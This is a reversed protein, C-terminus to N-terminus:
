DECTQKPYRRKTTTTTTTTTTTSGANDSSMTLVMVGIVGAHFLGVVLEGLAVVDAPGPAPSDLQSTIGAAVAWQTFVPWAANAADAMTQSVLNEAHPKAPDPYRLFQAKVARRIIEAYGYEELAKRGIRAAMERDPR